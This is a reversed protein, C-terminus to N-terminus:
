GIVVDKFIFALGVMSGVFILFKIWRLLKIRKKTRSDVFLENKNEIVTCDSTIDCARGQTRLSNLKLEVMGSDRASMDISFHCDLLVSSKEKRSDFIGFISILFYFISKLFWLRSNIELFRSIRIDFKDKDVNVQGEFNGFQNRKLRVVKGDVEVTPRLRKSAGKIKLTLAKM